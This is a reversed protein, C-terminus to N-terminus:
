RWGAHASISTASESKRRMRVRLGSSRSTARTQQPCPCPALWAPGARVTSKSTAPIQRPQSTKSSRPLPRKGGRGSQWPAAGRHAQWSRAPRLSAAMREM